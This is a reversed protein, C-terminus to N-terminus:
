SGLDTYGDDDYDDQQYNGQGGGTGGTPPNMM